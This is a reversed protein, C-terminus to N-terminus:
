AEARMADLENQYKLGRNFATAKATKTIILYTTIAGGAVALVVLILVLGKGKDNSSSSSKSGGGFFDLVNSAAQPVYSAAQYMNHVQAFTNYGAVAGSGFTRRRWFVGWSHVTIALGSGLIPGIIVLYGLDFFVQLQEMTLAPASTGDDQEFPITAGGFGLILLYCWTFGCTAMIAGMWNMFHPAGGVHKSETWTKGCGWANFWSIGFNLLWLLVIM